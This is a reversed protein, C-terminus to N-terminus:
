DELTWTKSHLLTTPGGMLHKPIGPDFDLGRLDHLIRKVDTSFKSLSDAEEPADGTDDSSSAKDSMSLNLQSAVAANAVEVNDATVTNDNEKVAEQTTAVVLKKDEQPLKNSIQGNAEEETSRKYTRVGKQLPPLQSSFLPSRRRVNCGQVLEVFFPVPNALFLMLVNKKNCGTMMM